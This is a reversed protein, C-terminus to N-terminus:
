QAGSPPLYQSRVTGTGCQVFGDPRNIVTMGPSERIGGRAVSLSSTKRRFGENSVIGPM